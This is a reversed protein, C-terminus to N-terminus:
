TKWDVLKYDNSPCAFRKSTKGEEKEEEVQKFLLCSGSLRFYFFSALSPLFCSSYHVQLFLRSLSIFLQFLLLFLIFSPSFQDAKAVTKSFPYIMVLSSSFPALFSFFPPSAGQGSLGLQADNAEM